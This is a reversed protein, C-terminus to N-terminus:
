LGTEGNASLNRILISYVAAASVIEKLPCCEDPMHCLREDGAGFLITPIGRKGATAVGNTCGSRIYSVPEMGAEKIASRAAMAM